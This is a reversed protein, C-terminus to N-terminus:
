WIFEVKNYNFKAQLKLKLMLHSEQDQTDAFQNVIERASNIDEMNFVSSFVIVGSGKM